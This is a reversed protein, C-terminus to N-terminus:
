AVQQDARRQEHRRQGHLAEAGGLLAQEAIELGRGIEGDELHLGPRLARQVGGM